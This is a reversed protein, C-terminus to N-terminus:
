SGTAMQQRLKALQTRLSGDYVRGDVEVVAGALLDPDVSVDAIVQKGTIAGFVRTLEVLAEPALPVASRVHARTRGERRDLLEDFVIRVAGVHALRDRDALLLLLDRFSAPAGIDEAIRLLLERKQERPVPGQLVRAIERDDLLASMSALARAVADVNGQEVALRFLARAYRRAVADPRM